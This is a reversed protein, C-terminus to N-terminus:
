KGSEKNNRNAKKNKAWKKIRRYVLYLIILVIVLVVYTGTNSKTVLGLSLAEEQSYIRVGVGLSEAYENNAFDKYALDVPITVTGPNKAFVSVSISDFDNSNLDGIYNKKSSLIQCGASDGVNAELFRAKGLGLNTIKINLAGKQNALLFGDTSLDLIPKANVILSVLSAEQITKNNFDYKILVPFKYVGADADSNVQIDFNFNENDDEDIEEVFIASSSKPAIPVNTLDIAVQVNEVTDQFNNELKVLVSATKGPEVTSPSVSIDKITIASALSSIAILQLVVLAIFTLSLINRTKM